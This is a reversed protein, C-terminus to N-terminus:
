KLLLMKKLNNFSGQGNVSSAEIRYIYVGSSVKLGGSNTADWQITYYGAVQQDSVLTNVQRGLIDYIKLSVRSDAPLQYYITTSPNFPNPFNQDLQYTTPLNYSLLITKRLLPGGRGVILFGLSDKEYLRVDRSVDFAFRVETNGTMPPAPVVQM